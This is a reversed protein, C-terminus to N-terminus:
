FSPGFKRKYGDWRFNLYNIKIATEVLIKVTEAAGETPATENELVSIATELCERGVKEWLENKESVM